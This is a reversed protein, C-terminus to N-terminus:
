SDGLVVPVACVADDVIQEERDIVRLRLLYDGPVFAGADIFSLTDNVVATNGTLLVDFGVRGGPRIELVYRRFTEGAATGNIPQIGTLNVGPELAISALDPANCGIPLPVPADPTPTLPDVATPDRPVYILDGPYLVADELLCNQRLLRPARQDIREAVDDLTEGAQLV